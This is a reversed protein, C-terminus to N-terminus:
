FGAAAASATASAEEPAPATVAAASKRTRKTATPQSTAQGKGSFRNNVIRKITGLLANAETEGVTMFVDIVREQNSVKKAM